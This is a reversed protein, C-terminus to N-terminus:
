AVAVNEVKHGQLAETLTGLFDHASAQVISQKTESKM